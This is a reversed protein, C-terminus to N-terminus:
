FFEWVVLHEFLNSLTLNIHTTTLKSCNLNGIESLAIIDFDIGINLLLGMLQSFM